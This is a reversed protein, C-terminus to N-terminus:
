SAMWAIFDKRLIRQPCEEVLYVPKINLHTGQGNVQEDLIADEAESLKSVISRLPAALNLVM